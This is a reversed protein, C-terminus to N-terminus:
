QKMVQAFTPRSVMRDLWASLKSYKELGDFAPKIAFFQRAFPFLHIDALTMVNGFLYEGEQLLAEWQTFHDNLRTRLASADEKNLNKLEYKFADLDPKFVHDCWYTWMRAKMRLVPNEPMLKKGPFSEDLYETIVTSQYIVQKKGGTEHILLPVAGEPHMALLEPSLESLNEERLQYPIEKEALVMRARIAFPCRRYSHLVLSSM